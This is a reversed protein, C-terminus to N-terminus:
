RATKTPSTASMLKAIGFDTVRLTGDHSFMM